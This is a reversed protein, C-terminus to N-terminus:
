KRKLEKGIDFQFGLFQMLKGKLDNMERFNDGYVQFEINEIRNTKKPYPPRAFDLNRQLCFIQYLLSKRLRIVQM